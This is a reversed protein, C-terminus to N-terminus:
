LQCYIEKSLSLTTYSAQSRPIIKNIKIIHVWPGTIM